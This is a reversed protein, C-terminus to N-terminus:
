CPRTTQPGAVRSCSGELSLSLSAEKEVPPASLIVLYTLSLFFTSSAMSLASHYGNVHRLWVGDALREELQRVELSENLGGLM